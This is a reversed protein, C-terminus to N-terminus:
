DSMGPVNAVRRQETKKDGGATTVRRQQSKDVGNLEKGVKKKSNEREKKQM